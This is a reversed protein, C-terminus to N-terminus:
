VLRHTRGVETVVHEQPYAGILAGDPSKAIHVESRGAISLAAVRVQFLSIRIGVLMAHKCSCICYQAGMESALTSQHEAMM